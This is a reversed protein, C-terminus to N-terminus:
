DTIKLTITETTGEVKAGVKYAFRSSLGTFTVSKETASLKATRIPTEIDDANYLYIEAEIETALDDASVCIQETNTIFSDGALQVDANDATVEFDIDEKLYEGSLLTNNESIDNDQGQRGCGVLGLVCVFALAFAILKKMYDGEKSKDTGGHESTTTSQEAATNQKTM